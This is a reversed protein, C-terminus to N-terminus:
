VQVVEGKFISKSASPPLHQMGLMVQEESKFNLLSSTGVPAM